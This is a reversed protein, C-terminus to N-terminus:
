ARGSGSRAVRGPIRTPRSSRDPPPWTELAAGEVDIRPLLRDLWKPLWWAARGFLSIAAPVLVLRVVFADVLVGM